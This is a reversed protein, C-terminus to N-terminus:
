ESKLNKNQILGNKRQNLSNLKTSNSFMTDRRQFLLIECLMAIIDFNFHYANLTTKKIMQIDSLCTLM